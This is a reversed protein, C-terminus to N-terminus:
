LLKIFDDLHKKRFDEKELPNMAPGNDKSLKIYLKRLRLIQENVVITYNAGPELVNGIVSTLHGFGTKKISMCYRYNTEPNIGTKEFVNINTYPLVPGFCSINLSIEYIGHSTIYEDNLIRWDTKKELLNMLSDFQEDNFAFNLM